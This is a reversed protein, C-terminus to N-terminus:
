RRKITQREALYGYATDTNRLRQTDVVYGKDKNQKANGVIISGAEEQRDYNNMRANMKNFAKVDDNYEDGTSKGKQSLGKYYAYGNVEKIGSKAKAFGNSAKGPLGPWSATRMNISPARGPKENAPPNPNTIKREPFYSNVRSPM